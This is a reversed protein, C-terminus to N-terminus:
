LGLAPILEQEILHFGPAIALARQYVQRAAQKQGLNAHARGLNALAHLYLWNYRRLEPSQDLLQVAKQFAALAEEKDGGFFAPANARLNGLEVWTGPHQPAIRTGEVILAAGRPGLSLGKWNNENIRMALLGGQMSTAVGRFAPDGYLQDLYRETRDIRQSVDDCDGRKQCFGVMGYEALALQYLLEGEPQGARHWAQRLEAIGTLWPQAQNTVYAHYIQAKAQAISASPPQAQLMWGAMGLVVFGFLRQTLKM